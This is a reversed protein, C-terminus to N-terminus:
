RWQFRAVLPWHDSLDRESEDMEWYGNWHAEQDDIGAGRVALDKRQEVKSFVLDKRNPDDEILSRSVLIRDFARGPLLHTRHQDQSLYSHLDVLDDAASETDKGCLIGLDSDSGFSEAPEETNLDGLVIVNEGAAIRDAIWSRVLRAQRVRIDAKEARARLHLNLVSIVEPDSAPGVEYRVDLHKFVNYYDGSGYMKRSQGNKSVSRHWVSPGHLLAVDQETFPEAGDICTIRYKAGNARQIAQALYGMVKNSEIEQLAIVSPSVSVLGKAVADRRWDWSPRDPASQEKALESRNDFQQNDFFWELNWTMIVFDHPEHDASRANAAAFLTAMGVFFRITHKM